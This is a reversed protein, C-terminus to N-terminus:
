HSNGETMDIMENWEIKNKAESGFAQSYKAIPFLCCSETSEINAPDCTSKPNANSCQMSTPKAGDDMGLNELEELLKSISDFSNKNLTNAQETTLLVPNKAMGLNPSAIDVSPLVSTCSSKKSTPSFDGLRGSNEVEHKSSFLSLNHFVTGDLLPNRSSTEFM